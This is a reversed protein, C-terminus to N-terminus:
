KAKPYAKKVDTRGILYDTSTDYIDAIASLIETPIGRIGLEYSSYTRRNIFLKDAIQQQTMDADERLDKIRDYKM